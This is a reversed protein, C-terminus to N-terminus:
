ARFSAVIIDSRERLLVNEKLSNSKLISTHPMALCRPRENRGVGVNKRARSCGTLQTGRTKIQVGEGAARTLASPSRVPRKSVSRLDKVQGKEPGGSM